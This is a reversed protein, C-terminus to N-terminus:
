EAATPLACGGLRTALALGAALLRARASPPAIWVLLRGATAHNGDRLAGVLAAATCEDPSPATGVSGLRPPRRACALHARAFAALARAAPPAAAPGIVLEFFGLLDCGAGAAHCRLAAILLQDHATTDPDPVLADLTCMRTATQRSHSQNAVLM